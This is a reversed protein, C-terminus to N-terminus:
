GSICSPADDHSSPFTYRMAFWRTGSASVALAWARAGYASGVVRGQRILGTVGSGRLHARADGPRSAVRRADRDVFIGGLRAAHPPSLAGLARSCTAMRAQPFEECLKLISDDLERNTWAPNPLRM